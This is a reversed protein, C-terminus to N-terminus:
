WQGTALRERIDIQLARLAAAYEDPETEAELNKLLYVLWSRWAYTPLRRLELSVREVVRKVRQPETV